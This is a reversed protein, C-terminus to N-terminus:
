FFLRFPGRFDPQSLNSDPRYDNASPIVSLKAAPALRKDTFSGKVAHLVGFSDLLIFHTRRIVSSEPLPTLDFLMEEKIAGGLACANRHSDDTPM